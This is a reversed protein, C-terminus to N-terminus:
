AVEAAHHLDELARRGLQLSTTRADHDMLHGHAVQHLVADGVDVRQAEGGMTVDVDVGAARGNVVSGM